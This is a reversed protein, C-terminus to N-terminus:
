QLVPANLVRVESHGEGRVTSRADIRHDFAPRRRLRAELRTVEDRPEVSGRDRAPRLQAADDVGLLGAILNADSHAPATRLARELHGQRHTGVLTLPTFSEAQPSTM